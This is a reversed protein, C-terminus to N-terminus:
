FVIKNVTKLAHVNGLSKYSSQMNLIFTYKVQHITTQFTEKKVRHM